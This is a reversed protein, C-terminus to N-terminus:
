EIYETSTKEPPKSQDQMNCAKGEAQLRIAEQLLAQNIDFLLQVRERERAETGPSRSAPQAM